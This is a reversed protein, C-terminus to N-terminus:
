SLLELGLKDIDFDTRAHGLECGDKHNFPVPKMEFSNNYVSPYEGDLVLYKSLIEPPYMSVNYKNGIKLLWQFWNAGFALKGDTFIKDIVREFLIYDIKKPHKAAHGVNMYPLMVFYEIRDKFEDYWKVFTNISETDSIIIHANLRVGSKTFRDVARRWFQEMHPHFTIACGGCWEKTKEVTDEKVLIGNTTYNPVINLEHAAQCVKWFDPHELPEGSGGIAWQYCRQNETMQGFFWHIKEVVNSFYRGGLSASAYCYYCNQKTGDPQTIMSQGTRCKDNLAVDYFEAWKLETIPKKPDIPIRITKGNHFVSKYNSEPFIRTKM